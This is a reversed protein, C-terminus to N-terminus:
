LLILFDFSLVLCKCLLQLHKLHHLVYRDTIPVGRKTGIVKIELGPKDHLNRCGNSSMNGRRICKMEEGAGQFDQSAHCLFAHM